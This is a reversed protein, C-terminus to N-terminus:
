GCIVALLGPGWLPVLCICSSRSLFNLLSLLGNSTLYAQPLLFYFPLHIGLPFSWASALLWLPTPIPILSCSIPFAPLRSFLSWLGPLRSSVVTLPHSPSIAALSASRADSVSTHLPLSFLPYINHSAFRLFSWRHPSHPPTNGPILSRRLCSWLYPCSGSALVTSLLLPWSLLDAMKDIFGIGWSCNRELRVINLLKNLWLLM